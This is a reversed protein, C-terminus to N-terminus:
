HARRINHPTDEGFHISVTSLKVIGSPNRSILINIIDCPSTNRKWRPIRLFRIRSQNEKSKYGIIFKTYFKISFFYLLVEDFKEFKLWLKKINKKLIIIFYIRIWNYMYSFNRFSWWLVCVMRISLRGTWSRQNIVAADRMGTWRWRRGPIERERPGNEDLIRRIEGCFVRRQSEARYHGRSGVDAILM